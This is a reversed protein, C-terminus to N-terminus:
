NSMDESTCCFHVWERMDELTTGHFREKLYYEVAKVDHGITAEIAKVRQAQASNFTTGWTELLQREPPTLPRVHPLEPRESLTVLWTLEVRVRYHILAEESFYPALSQVQTAYRGDLPSIATLAMREGEAATACLGCVVRALQKRSRLASRYM